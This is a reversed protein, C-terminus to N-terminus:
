PGVVNVTPRAARFRVAGKLTVQTHRIDIQRLKPCDLFRMLGEDTLGSGPLRVDELAGPWEIQGLSVMTVDTPNPGGLSLGQLRSLGGIALAGDDTVPCGRMALKKLQSDAAFHQFGAGTVKTESIELWNLERLRALHAIGVDSVRTGHLNLHQLAKNGAIRVLAEDGIQTQNLSLRTLRPFDALYEAGDDGIPNGDLAVIELNRFNRLPELDSGTLGAEELILRRLRLHNRMARPANRDAWSRWAFLGELRPLESVASWFRKVDEPPRPWEGAAINVQGVDHFFDYGLRALLWRPVLSRHVVGPKADFQAEFDYYVDGGLARITAVAAAQRRARELRIAFLGFLVGLVLMAVLLTRLSFQWWHRRRRPAPSCDVATPATASM